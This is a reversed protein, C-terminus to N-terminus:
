KINTDVQVSYKYSLKAVLVMTDKIDVNGKLSITYKTKNMYDKLEIEKVDLNVQTSDQSISKKEALLVEAGNDPTFYVNISNIGTLKSIKDKTRIYADTLEVNELSGDSINNAKFLSDLDCNVIKQLIVANEGTVPAVIFETTFNQTFNVPLKDCSSVLIFLMGSAALILSKTM